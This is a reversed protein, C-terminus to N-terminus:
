IIETQSTIVNIVELGKILLYSEELTPFLLKGNSDRASRFSPKEYTELPNKIKINGIKDKRIFFANSSNKNNGIFYYGKKEALHCIALLSAGFYLRNGKAKSVVFDEQYPISIAREIGFLANYECIVCVPNVSTIENWIWYDNGDIDISLIGIENKLGFSSLLQNINKKTIFSQIATISRTAYLAQKKIFSIDKENGDIVYGEWFNNTLLFRTNSEEYNEVGFEVFTNPMSINNTIYQIIGDEGTQSFVKWEVEKIDNISEKNKLNYIYLQAQLVKLEEIQMKLANIGLHFKILAKIKEIIKLKRM